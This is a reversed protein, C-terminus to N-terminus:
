DMRVLGTSWAATLDMEPERGRNRQRNWTLARPRELPWSKDLAGARNPSGDEQPNVHEVQWLKRHTPTLQETRPMRLTMESGGSRYTLKLYDKVIGKYWRLCSHSEIGGTEQYAVLAAKLWKPGVSNCDRTLYTVTM